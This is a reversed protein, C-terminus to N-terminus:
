GDYDAEQETSYLFQLLKFILKNYKPDKAIITLFTGPRYDDADEEIKIMWSPKEINGMLIDKILNEIYKDYDDVDIDKPFYKSESYKYYDEFFVGAVLIDDFKEPREFVLLIENILEKLPELSGDSYTYITTSSNTIVDVVSHIKIKEM